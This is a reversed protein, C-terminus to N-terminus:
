EIKKVNGNSISKTDNTTRYTPLITPYRDKSDRPLSGSGERLPYTAILIPLQLKIKKAFNRPNIIFQPSHIRMAHITRVELSYYLIRM